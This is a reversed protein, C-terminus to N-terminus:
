NLRTSKRDKLSTVTIEESLQAALAFNATLTASPELKLDKRAQKGFGRLAVTVGYTGPAVSAAFSGDAASTVLKTANTAQNTITVAAGPVAAGTADTVVGRITGETGQSYAPAGHVLVVLAVSLISLRSRSVM